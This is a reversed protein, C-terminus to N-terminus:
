VMSYALYFIGVGVSLLVLLLLAKFVPGRQALDERLFSRRDEVRHYQLIGGAARRNAVVSVEQVKGKTFGAAPRPLKSQASKPSPKTVAEQATSSALVIEEAARFGGDLRARVRTDGIEIIDGDELRAMKIRKGHLKTGNSSSMDELYVGEDSVLVRAHRRSSAPDDVQLDCVPLRGIVACSEVIIETGVRAGTLLILRVQM